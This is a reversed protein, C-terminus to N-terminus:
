IALIIIISLTYIFFFSFFIQFVTINLVTVNPIAWFRNTFSFYFFFQFITIQWYYHKAMEAAENWTFFFILRSYVQSVWRLTATHSLSPIAGVGYWWSLLLLLSSLCASVVWPLASSAAWRDAICAGTIWVRTLSLIPSWSFLCKVKVSHSCPHHM